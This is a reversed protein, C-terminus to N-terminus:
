GVVQPPAEPKPSDATWSEAPTYTRVTGARGLPLLCFAGGAFSAESHMM